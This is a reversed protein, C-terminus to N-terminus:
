SKYNRRLFNFGDGFREIKSASTDFRDQIKPLFIENIHKSCGTMEVHILFSESVSRM